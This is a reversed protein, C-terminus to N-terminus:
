REIEVSDTHENYFAFGLKRYRRDHAIGPEALHLHTSFFHGQIPLNKEKAFQVQLVVLGELLVNITKKLPGIKALVQLEEPTLIVKVSSNRKDISVDIENIKSVLGGEDRLEKKFEEAYQSWNVEPTPTATPTPQVTSQAVPLSSSDSSPDAKSVERNLSNSFLITGSFFAAACLAAKLVPGGSIKKSLFPLAVCGALLFLLGAPVSTPFAAFALLLSSFGILVQLLIAIIKM